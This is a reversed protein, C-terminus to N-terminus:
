VKAPVESEKKAKSDEEEIVGWVDLYGCLIVQHEKGDSAPLNMKWPVQKNYHVLDGVHLDDTSVWRHLKESYTGKGLSLVIGLGERFSEQTNVMRGDYDPIYISGVKEPRPTPYLFVVDRIAKWKFNISNCVPCSYPITFTDRDCNLKNNTPQLHVTGNGSTVSKVSTGCAPCKQSM